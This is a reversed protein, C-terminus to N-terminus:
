RPGLYQARFLDHSAADQPTGLNDTTGHHCWIVRDAVPLMWTIEHGTLVVAAGGAAASRFVRTLRECDGPAIGRFPEDAVLCAPRRLMACAIEARRREGGSLEDTTQDLLATLALEEAVERARAEADARVAPWASLELLQGLPRDWPLFDYAPAYALGHRALRHLRPRRIWEGHLRVTGSDPRLFGTAIRLLTTKGCGNRGLLVTVEGAYAWLSANHLVSRGEFSKAASVVELVLEKM